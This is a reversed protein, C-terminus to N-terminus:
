QNSNAKVTLVARPSLARRDNFYMSRIVAPNVQYSGVLAARMMYYVVITQNPKLQNFFFVMRNDRIEKYTIAPNELDETITTDTYNYARTNEIIQFGAPIFDELVMYHYQQKPEIELRVLFDEGPQYDPQDELLTTGMANDEWQLRYYERSVALPGSQTQTDVQTSLYALSLTIFLESNGQKEIELINNGQKIAAHPIFAFSEGNDAYLKTVDLNQWPNDNLRFRLPVRTEAGIGQNGLYQSLALVVAATDRTSLWHNDERHQLLWQVIDFLQPHKPRTTLIAQLVMATTEIASKQQTTGYTVEGDWYSTKAEKNTIAKTLLLDTLTKAEASKGAKDAALTLLALSYPTLQNRQKFIDLIISVAPRKALAQVYLSLIRIDTPIDKRAIQKELASLGKGYSDNDVKYGQDKALTLGYLVYATMFPDIEEEQWWGWGGAKNQFGLLRSIGAGIHKTVHEKLVPNAVKQKELVASLVVSPLFGSMTQEVCGYPYTTLYELASLVARYVNTHAYVRGGNFRQIAEAPLNFQFTKRQEQPLLIGSVTQVKQVGYPTVPITILMDDGNTGAKATLRLTVMNKAFVNIIVPITITGMANINFATTYKNVIKAGEADVQFSGSIKQATINKISIPLEVHDGETLTLPPDAIISVDRRAIIKTVAGGMQTYYNVCRSTLRWQTINDSLTFTITAKGDANTKVTPTWFCTDKYVKRVNRNQNAKFSSLGNPKRMELAALQDKVARSYGYFNFILSNQTRVENRKRPYFFKQMEVALEPSIAYIAEDVVGLSLEVQVPHQRYDKVEVNVTVAEGPLYIEKNTKLYVKLLKDVPPVIINKNAFYFHNDFIAAATIYVNPTFQKTLPLQIVCANGTFQYVQYSYLGGGEVSFLFPIDPTRSLVLFRAKDGPVYSYQDAIIEIGEGSYTLTQGKNAVYFSTASHIVNKFADLGDAVLQIHGKEKLKFTLTTQGTKGTEVAKSYLAVERGNPLIQMAKFSFQAPIPRNNLNRTTFSITIAENPAYILRKSHMEINYQGKSMRITNEGSATYNSKDMVNVDVRYTYDIDEAKTEFSFYFKGYKDLKGQGDTIKEERTSRYESESYYWSYEENLWWPLYFRTRYVTYKLTADQVPTGFYYRSNVTANVKSGILGSGELYVDVKFKPKKYEKVKFEGVHEKGELVAILKYTGIAPESGMTLTGNFTGMDNLKTTTTFITNGLPDTVKIAVPKDKVTQYNEDVYDRVIGKYYVEQLPRYVPRDTYIYVKRHNVSVPFFIPDIIAVQEDKKAVITLESVNKMPTIFLGNKDTKGTIPGKGSNKILPNFIALEAGMVPKGSIKDVVYCLLADDAQKTIVALKSIVVLTYGAERDKVGEVLFVGPESENIPIHNYNWGTKEDPFFRFSRQLPYNKLLKVTSHETTINSPYAVDRLSPFIDAIGTRLDYNVFSRLYNRSTDVATNFTKSLIYLANTGADYNKEWPQHANPQTKFFGLPNDVKYVRIDVYALWQTEITVFAADGPSFIQETSIYFRPEQGQVVSASIFFLLVIVTLLPIFFAKNKM